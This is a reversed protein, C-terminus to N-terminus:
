RFALPQHGAHWVAVPSRLSEQGGQARIGDRCWAQEVAGDIALAEQAIDLLEQQWCQLRAIHDDHVIEAAVLSISDPSRDVGGICPEDIQRRVTGFKVGDFLGERLELVVQSLGLSSGDVLDAVGDAGYEFGEGWGFASVVEDVGPITGDLTM